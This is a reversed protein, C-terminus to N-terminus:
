TSAGTSGLPAKSLWHRDPRRRDYGVIYLIVLMYCLWCVLISIDVMVIVVYCCLIMFVDSPDPSSSASSM